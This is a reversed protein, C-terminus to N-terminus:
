DVQCQRVIQWFHDPDLSAGGALVGDLTDTKIFDAITDKTVSGGYIVTDIPYKRKVYSAVEATNEPTEAKGTGIAWVPEYAIISVNNPILTEKGQICFISKLGAEKALGVKQFLMKDNESFNDRRESHGIIVYGVLEGLMEASIEGTYAGSTEPSVNQAGLKIPLNYKNILSRALQLHVFSPCVVVEIDNLNNQKFNALSHFKNFWDKVEEVQKNSKWNAIIYKM